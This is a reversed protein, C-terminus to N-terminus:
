FSCRATCYASRASTASQASSKKQGGVGASSVSTLTPGNGHDGSVECVSHFLPASVNQRIVELNYGIQLSLKRCFNKSFFFRCFPTENLVSLDFFNQACQGVM